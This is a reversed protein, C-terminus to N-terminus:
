MFEVVPYVTYSFQKWQDEQGYRERVTLHSSRFSIAHEIQIRVTKNNYTIFICPPVLVKGHDISYEYYSAPVYLKITFASNRDLEIEGINPTNDFAINANEYPLGSGTFSSRSDPPCAAVFSVKNTPVVETIKGYVEIQRM